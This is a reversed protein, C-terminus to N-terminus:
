NYVTGYDTSLEDISARTLHLPLGTVRSESKGILKRGKKLTERCSRSSGEM